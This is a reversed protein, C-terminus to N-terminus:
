EQVAAFRGFVARFARAPCGFSAILQGQFLADSPHRRKGHVDRKPLGPWIRRSAHCPQPAWPHAEAIAARPRWRTVIRAPRRREQGTQSVQTPRTRTWQSEECWWLGKERETGVATSQRSRTKLAGRRCVLLPGLLSAGGRWVNGRPGGQAERQERRAVRDSHEVCVNVGKGYSRSVRCRLSFCRRQNGAMDLGLRRM